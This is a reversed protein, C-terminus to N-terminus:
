RRRVMVLSSVSFVDTKTTHGEVVSWTFWKCRVELTEVPGQERLHHDVITMAPGGSGLRVVDGKNFESQIFGKV